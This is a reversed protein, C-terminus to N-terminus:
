LQVLFTFFWDLLGLFVQNAVFLRTASQSFDILDHVTSSDQSIAKTNYQIFKSNVFISVQTSHNILKYEHNDFERFWCVFNM